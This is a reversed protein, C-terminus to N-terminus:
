PMSSSMRSRRREFSMCVTEFEIRSIITRAVSSKKALAEQSPNQKTREEQLRNEM